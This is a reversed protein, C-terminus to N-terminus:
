SESERNIGFLLKGVHVVTDSTLRLTTETISGQSILRGENDDRVLEKGSGGDKESNKGSTSSM